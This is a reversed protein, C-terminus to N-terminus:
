EAVPNRQSAEDAVKRQENEAKEKAAAEADAAAKARRSVAAELEAKVHAYFRGIAAQVQELPADDHRTISQVAELLRQEKRQLDM